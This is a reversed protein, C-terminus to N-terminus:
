REDTRRELRAPVSIVIVDAEGGDHPIFTQPRIERMGSVMRLGRTKRDDNRNWAASIRVVPSRILSAFPSNQEGAQGKETYPPQQPLVDGHPITTKPAAPPIPAKRNRM